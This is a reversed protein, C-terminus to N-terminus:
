SASNLIHAPMQEPDLVYLHLQDWALRLASHICGLLYVDSGLSSMAVRPLNPIMESVVGRVADLFHSGAGVIGGGFVVLTPDVITCLNAVSTGLYASLEEVLRQAEPRGSRAAEFVAAPDLHGESGAEVAQLLRLAEPSRSQRSLREGLQNRLGRYHHHDINLRGIEGAHWHGGRHLKGDIIIGAGVQCPDSFINASIFAFDSESQACGKWHEGQVAANLDNEVAVPANLQVGLRQALDIDRWGELYNMTLDIARGRRSDTIGPAAVSVGMLSEPPLAAKDLVERVGAAQAAIHSEPGASPDIETRSRALITGNLDAAALRMQFPQFELGVVCGLDVNIELLRPKRGPGSAQVPLRHERLLHLERLTDVLASVTPPSLESIKALEARSLPGKERVAELIQWSNLSRMKSLDIKSAYRGGQKSLKQRKSSM